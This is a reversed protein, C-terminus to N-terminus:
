ALSFFYDYLLLINEPKDEAVEGDTFEACGFQM